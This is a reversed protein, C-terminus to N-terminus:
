TSKRKDEAEQLLYFLKKKCSEGLRRKKDLNVKAEIHCRLVFNSKNPSEIVMIDILEIESPNVDPVESLIHSILGDIGISSIAEKSIEMKEEYTFRDGGFEVGESLELQVDCASISFLLTILLINKM